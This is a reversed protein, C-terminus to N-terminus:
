VDVSELESWRVPSGDSKIKGFKFDAPVIMPIQDAHVVIPHEAHRKLINAVDHELGRRVIAINADHINLCVRAFESPWSPDDHSKYIVRTVHDGITSQPRFAVISKLAEDDLQGILTLRRGYSNYLRKTQIAERELKAWWRRLEPTTRHYLRFIPAAEHLPLNTVQSLRDQGMRYNLGHRCRKAIFRQTPNGAEDFDKTPTDSYPIGWIDAALARHCDYGKDIRAREFQEMWTTIRADWGVYRAEAQALDFYVFNYGHEALFFSLSNGVSEPDIDDDSDLEFTKQTQNQFNMGTGWSTQASSLRGPASQTGFQKYETRMRGDDDVRAEAYTSRFKEKSRFRELVEVLSKCQTSTRVHAKVRVLNPKATSTGRGVLGLQRFLLKGVQTPSSVSVDLDSRGTCLRAQSVFQNRLKDVEIALDHAIKEKLGIDCHLGMVNMWVLHPQLRMVHSFFFDELDARKLENQLKTAIELTHCTDKVNYTWFRGIDGTAHWDAKEDKYYPHATYQTTLFGLDHPFSPYLTHHALLTDFWCAHVHIRDKYWLWTSDFIGHQMVFQKTTDGLLRCLRKRIVVEEEYSYINETDNHFNFCVGEYISNALGVCSTTTRDPTEIDVSIPTTSGDFHDLWRLAESYDLDYHPTVEFQKFKGDIVKRIKHLDFRFFLKFRHDTFCYAPNVTALCLVTRGSPLVCTLVSGRWNLIGYNHTFCELAMGGLLVLLKVNPLQDIEWLALEFWHKKESHSIKSKQKEGEDQSYVLQRKVVNTIYCESRSIGEQSLTKFMFQGSGGVFPSGKKKEEPGPAEGILAIEAHFTGGMVVDCTLQTRSAHQTYESRLQDMSDLM